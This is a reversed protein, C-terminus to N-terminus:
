TVKVDKGPGDFGDWDPADSGNPRSGRSYALEVGEIQAVPQVVVVEAGFGASHWTEMMGPLQAFFDPHRRRMMQLASGSIQDVSHSHRIDRPFEPVNANTKPKASTGSSYNSDTKKNPAQGNETEKEQGWAGHLLFSKVDDPYQGMGILLLDYHMLSARCHWSGGSKARHYLGTLAAIAGMCGTGYDSIPFPPVVPEDLGLFRGQEWALGTVCDAIQQWGPRNSWEGVHGFCTESVYVYGRGRREAMSAVARPGYGLREIAGPRFGEIVVDADALLEEFRKRGDASKLNLEATRKGMNGDLQFFPVDSLHPCNIKLVDAGYEALIRGITPAAIIRSVDLVKIGALPRRQTADGAPHTPPLFPAPPTTTEIADVSWPPSNSNAKGHATQLFEEHKLAQVGAQRNLGNLFELESVTYQSVRSEIEDVIADHGKETLDPRRAELGLMRLTSSAELSGHIHYYEGPNKTSYLNASMRRYLDSQAELLDTAKLFQTAGKEPKTFGGISTLYTQFLFATTRELDIKIRPAGNKSGREPLQSAVGNQTADAASATRRLEAIALGVSAEVAKLAAGLETEKFPIPFYPLDSASVFEVKRAKAAIEEPVPALQLVRELVNRAEKVSSYGLAARTPACNLEDCLKESSHDWQCSDDHGTLPGHTVFRM